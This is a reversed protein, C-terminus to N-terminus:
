LPNDKDFWESLLVAKEDISLGRETSSAPDAAARAVLVGGVIVGTVLALPLQDSMGLRVIASADLDRSELADVIAILKDLRSRPAEYAMWPPTTVAACLVGLLAAVPWQDVPTESGEFELVLQGADFM